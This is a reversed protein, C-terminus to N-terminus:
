KKSPKVNVSFNLAFCLTGMYGRGGGWSDVDGM